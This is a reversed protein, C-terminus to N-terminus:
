EADGRNRSRGRGSYKLQKLREQRYEDWKREQRNWYQQRREKRGERRKNRKHKKWRSKAQGTVSYAQGIVAQSAGYLQKPVLILLVAAAMGYIWNAVSQGATAGQGSLLAFMFKLVLMDLPAIMLATYWGAIFSDAYRKVKPLSWALALLPSIAAVFLIYAMRIVAIILVTLLLASNVVWVIALTASVGFMEQFTTGLTSPRFALTLANTLEVMYQLLPLSVTGFVLAAIMKPLIMRVDRYGVGLIPGIMYLIGAAMFGVGALLYSVLLAQQHVEQVAPNPHVDPTHTLLSVIQVLLYQLLELFPGFLVEELVTVLTDDWNNTFEDFSSALDDIADTIGSLDIGGGGGGDEPSEQAAVPATCLLLLGFLVFLRQKM